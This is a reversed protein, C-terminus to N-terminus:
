LREVSIKMRCEDMEEKFSPDAKAKEECPDLKPAWKERIKRNQEIAEPTTTAEYWADFDDTSSPIGQEKEWELIEQISDFSYEACDCASPSGDGCSTLVVSAFFFAGCITM